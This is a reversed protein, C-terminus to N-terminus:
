LSNRFDIRCQNAAVLRPGLAIFFIDKAATLYGVLIVHDLIKGEGQMQMDYFAAVLAAHLHLM